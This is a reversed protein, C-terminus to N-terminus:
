ITTESSISQFIFFYFYYKDKKLSPKKNRSKKGRVNLAITNSISNIVLPRPGSYSVTSVTIISFRVPLDLVEGKLDPSFVFGFSGEETSLQSLYFIFYL